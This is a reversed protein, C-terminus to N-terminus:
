TFKASEGKVMIGYICNKMDLESSDGKEISEYWQAKSCAAWEFM